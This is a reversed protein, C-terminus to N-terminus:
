RIIFHTNNIMFFGSSNIVFSAAPLQAATHVLEEWQQALQQGPGCGRPRDGLWGLYNELRGLYNELWGLHKQGPSRGSWVKGGQQVSKALERADTVTREEHLDTLM